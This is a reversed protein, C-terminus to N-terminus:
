ILWVVKGDYPESAFCGTVPRAHTLGDGRDCEMLFVPRAGHGEAIIGRLLALLEDATLTKQKSEREYNAAHKEQHIIEAEVPNM